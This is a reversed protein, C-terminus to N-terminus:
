QPLVISNFSDSEVINLLLAKLSPADSSRWASLLKGATQEDTSQHAVSRRAANRYWFNAVCQAAKESSAMVGALGQPDDVVGMADDFEYLAFGTGLSSPGPAYLGSEGDFQHLAAGYNDFFTHCTACPLKAHETFVELDTVSDSDFAEIPIDPPLESCLLREVIFAGRTIFAATPHSTHSALFGHSGLVGLPEESESGDAHSISVPGQYFDAFPKDEDFWDGIFNELYATWEPTSRDNIELWAVILDVIHERAQPQSMLREAQRVREDQESLAGSTAAERLESDPAAGTLFYALRTAWESPGLPKINSDSDVGVEVQLLFAPSLFTSLIYNQVRMKQLEIAEGRADLEEILGDFTAWEAEIESQEEASLPRRYASTKMREAFGMICEQMEPASSCGLQGRLAEEDSVGTLFIGAVRNVFSSYSSFVVQTLLQTAADNRLGGIRPEAALGTAAEQLEESDEAIGLAQAISAVFERNTLRAVPTTSLAFAGTETPDNGDREAAAGANAPDNAGPGSPESNTQGLVGECGACLLFASIAVKRM